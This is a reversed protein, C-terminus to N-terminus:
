PKGGKRRREMDHFVEEGTVGQATIYNTIPSGGVAAAGSPILSPLGPSKLSADLKMQSLSKRIAKNPLSGSETIGDAYQEITARGGDKLKKWGAPGLPSGPNKAPSNPFEGKMGTFVWRVADAVRKAGKRIGDAFQDMLRRGSDAIWKGLNNISKTIEQPLSRFWDVISITFRGVDRAISNWTDNFWRGINELTERVAPGATEGFRKLESWAGGFFESIARGSTGFANGLAPGIKDWNAVLAIVGATLAAVAVIVIGIPNATLAANFLWQAATALKTVATKIALAAGSAIIAATHALWKASSVVVAGTAQAMSSIFKGTQVAILQLLSTRTGDVAAKYGFLAAVGLGLESIAGGLKFATFALKAVGLGIALQAIADINDAVFGGFGVLFPTLAKIADVFEGGLRQILPILAEALEVIVPSLAIFLEALVPGIVSGLAGSVSLISGLAAAVPGIAPELAKLGALFGTTMAELGNLFAPNGLIKAIIGIARGLGEGFLPVIEKLVPAMQSFMYGLPELAVKLGTFFGFGAEFLMTLTKQFGPREMEAAVNHLLNALASLGNPLAGSAADGLASLVKWAGTATRGLEKVAFIGEEIWEALAGSAAAEDIWKGFREAVGAFDQALKPLFSSGVDGLKMIARTLPEITTNMIRQAEATNGFMRTLVGGGLNRTLSGMLEQLGAGLEGALGVVGTRLEPLLTNVMLLFPATFGTFFREQAAFRLEKLAPSVSRIALVARQAALPLNAMAENAANQAATQEQIRNQDADHLDQKAREVRRAGDVEARRLQEQADLVAKSGQVGTRDAEAKDKAAKAAESKQAEAEIRAEDALEKLEQLRGASVGPDSQAQRYADEADRALRASRAASANARDRALALGKQRETEEAVAESLNATADAVREAADEQADAIAQVQRLRISPDETAQSGSVKDLESLAGLATGVGRFSTILTGFSAGAAGIVAPILASVNLVAALQQGVSALGGAAGFASSTLGVIATSIAAIKPVHKDLRGLQKGIDVIANFGVRAGGLAFLATLSAYAKAMDARNLTVGINLRRFRTFLAQLKLATAGIGANRSQKSSSSEEESGPPGNSSPVGEAEEKLKKIEERLRRIQTDIVTTNAKVKVIADFSFKKAMKALEKRVMQEFRDHLKPVLAVEIDDNEDDVM